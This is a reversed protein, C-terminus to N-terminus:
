SKTNMTIIRKSQHRASIKNGESKTLWACNQPYFGENKNLRSFMMGESPPFGVDKLFVHFDRWPEYVTVGAIYEKSNPNIVGHVIRSWVKYPKTKFLSQGPKAPTKADIRGLNLRKKAAEISINRTESVYVNAKGISEFYINDVYISKKNSGGSVGGTSINYGKPALTQLEKIWFIEKQELDKKTIGTDIVQMEFADHGFERIASHLSNDGKIHGALAQELHYKWRRELTQITLGIYQKGSAKHTISYILGNAYGPNPIREFAEEPSLGQKLWRSITHSSAPSNLNRVAEELNPYTIGYVTISDTERSHRIYEEQFIKDESLGAERRKLARWYNIGLEKCRKKFTNEKLKEQACLPCNSGSLHNSPSQWFDGHKPCGIVSKVDTKIYQFNDYNYKEGHIAKAKEIFENKFDDSKRFTGINKRSGTLLLPKCNPCGTHGNMHARAEQWFEVDHERCLIIIKEGAKPLEDFLSYDYRNKFHEQSRIIFEEKSLKQSEFYCKRCGVGKKHHGPTVEFIGHTSCIVKIKTSSGKYDMLSYDYQNGHIKQFSEIVEKNTKKLPM